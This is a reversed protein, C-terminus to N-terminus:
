LTSIDTWLFLYCCDTTISYVLKHLRWVMVETSYVAIAPKMDM